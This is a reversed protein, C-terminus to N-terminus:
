IEMSELEIETQKVMLSTKIGNIITFALETLQKMMNITTYTNTQNIISLYEITDNRIKIIEPFDNKHHVFTYDISEIKWRALTEAFNKLLNLDYGKNLFNRENFEDYFYELLKSEKISDEEPINEREDIELNIKDIKQLSEKIDEKSFNNDRKILNMISDNVEDSSLPKFNEDFNSCCDNSEIESYGRENDSLCMDELYEQVKEM